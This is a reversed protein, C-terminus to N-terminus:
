GRTPQPLPEEPCLGGRKDLTEVHDHDELLVAAVRNACAHRSIFANRGHKFGLSDEYGTAGPQDTTGEEFSARSRSEERTARSAVTPALMM